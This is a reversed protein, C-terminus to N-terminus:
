RRDRKDYSSDPEAKMLLGSQADAICQYGRESEIRSEKANVQKEATRLCDPSQRVLDFPEFGLDPSKSAASLPPRCRM